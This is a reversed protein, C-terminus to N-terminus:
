GAPGFDMGEIQGTAKDFTVKFELTNKEFQATVVWDTSTDGSESQEISTISQFQGLTALSENVFEQFVEESIVTKMATTMDRSFATYDGTNYGTLMNEVISTVQQETLPVVTEVAPTTGCAALGILLVLAAALLLKSRRIINM